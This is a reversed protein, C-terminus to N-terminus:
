GFVEAGSISLHPLAEAQWIDDRRVTRVTGYGIGSPRTYLTVTNQTLDVLWYERIGVRAYLAAKVERDLGVSTDAVEILLLVDPPTPHANGYFDARPELVMLDPQPEQGSLLRLPDQVSVVAKSGVHTTLLANLRKVCGAHHSGIPSMDVIEGELLEVRDDERLIGAEAMRYYDETTFRWRRDSNRFAVHGCILEVGSEPLIGLEGLRHYEDVDFQHVPLILTETTM